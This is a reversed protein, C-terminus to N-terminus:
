IAFSWVEGGKTKIRNYWLAAEKTLCKPRNGVNKRKKESFVTCDFIKIAFILVM